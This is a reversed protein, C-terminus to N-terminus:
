DKLCRVSLGNGRSGSRRDIGNSNYSLNRYWAYLEANASSSWLHNNFNINRFGGTNFRYGGPLSTFGCSDTAGTNPKSWHWTGYEKMKGGANTGLYDTLINWDEESPLHWGSPCATKAAEWNYLVGYTTFNASAKADGSSVGEYGYVYYLPSTASGMSSPSVAPLWALNEIM